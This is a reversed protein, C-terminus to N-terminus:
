DGTGIFDDILLINSNDPIENAGIPLSNYFNSEKWNVSFKNKLSQIISQSGDPKRDDCTAILYTNDASLNWISEIRNSLIKCGEALKRGDIFSFNKILFEILDKQEDNDSLCWLEFLAEPEYKLWEYEMHLQTLTVFDKKDIKDTARNIIAENM